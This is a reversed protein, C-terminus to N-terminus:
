VVQLLECLDVSKLCTDMCHITGTSYGILVSGCLYIKGQRTGSIQEEAAFMLQQTVSTGRGTGACLAERLNWLIKSTESSDM